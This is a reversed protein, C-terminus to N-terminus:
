KTRGGASRPASPRIVAPSMRLIAATAGRGAGGARKNAPPVVAPRASLAEPARGTAPGRCRNLHCIAAALADAAHEDGPVAGGLLLGVMRSVQEKGARGSGSVSRKIESAAYEVVEISAAAAAVLAAGRAHGLVLASRANAAHYVGEVAVSAPAMREIVECLSRHIAALRSALPLDKGPSITGCALLRLQSGSAEIVGYGTHLSGPDIGLVRVRRLM